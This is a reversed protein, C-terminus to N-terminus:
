LDKGIVKGIAEAIFRYGQKNFHGWRRFRYLSMPDPHSLLVPYLDILPINLDEMGALQSDRVLAYNYNPNRVGERVRIRMPIAVIYLKGGWSEVTNKALRLLSM